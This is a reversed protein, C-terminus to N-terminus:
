QCIYLVAPFSSYNPKASVCKALPNSCTGRATPGPHCLERNTPAVPCADAQCAIKYGIPVVFEGTPDKIGIACCSGGTPCDEPGDCTM